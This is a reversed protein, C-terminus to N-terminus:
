KLLLQGALRPPAATADNLVAFQAQPEHGGESFAILTADSDIFAVVM